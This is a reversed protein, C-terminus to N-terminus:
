MSACLIVHTMIELAVAVFIVNRNIMVAFSVRDKRVDPSFLTLLITNKDVMEVIGGNNHSKFLTLSGQNRNSFPCDIGLVTINMTM